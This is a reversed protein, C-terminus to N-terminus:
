DRRRLIFHESSLAGLRVPLGRVILNSAEDVVEAGSNDYLVAYRGAPDIGRPRVVTETVAEPGGIRFVGILSTSRDGSAREIIGWGNEGRLNSDDSHHYIVTDSICPRVVNKYIDVFHRIRMLMDENVKAGEPTHLAVTPHGFLGIRLQFDLDASVNAQMGGIMRSIFEPPLVMSMGNLILFSRPAIQWDTVWTTDFQALMGLDTRAGGSACNEFIV